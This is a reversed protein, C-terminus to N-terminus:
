EHNFYHQTVTMTLIPHGLLNITMEIWARLDWEGGCLAVMM